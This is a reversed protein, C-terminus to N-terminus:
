MGLYRSPDEITGDGRRVQVHFTSTAREGALTPNPRSYLTITAPEGQVILEAARAPSLDDCDGWGRTMITLLDAFEEVGQGAWPERAYRVGSKYLPPLPRGAQRFALILGVNTLTTGQLFLRAIRGVLAPDTILSTDVNAVIRM